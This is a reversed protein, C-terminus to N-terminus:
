LEFKEMLSFLIKFNEEGKDIPSDKENLYKEMDENRMYYCNFGWEIIKNYIKNMKKEWGQNNKEYDFCMYIDKVGLTKLLNLQYPSISSGGVAISSNEGFYSDMKLVSKESEWIMCKKSKIISEKNIHIGYANRGLQHKYTIRSRMSTFPVYKRGLKLQYESLNRQRIGVLRNDIDYHPIIISCDEMSFLINFKDMTEKSIDERLWEIPYYNVFTNLIHNDYELLKEDFNIEKKIIPRSVIPPRAKRGFGRTAIGINFYDAIFDVSEQLTEFNMVDQVLDLISFNGCNSYCHFYLTDKFLDCKWSEGDEHCLSTNMVMKEDTEMQENFEGGLYHVMEVVMSLTLRSKLENAYVIEGGNM